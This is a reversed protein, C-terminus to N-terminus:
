YGKPCDKRGKQDEQVPVNNITRTDSDHSVSDTSDDQHLGLVSDSEALSTSSGPEITNAHPTDTLNTSSGPDIVDAHPTNATDSPSSVLNNSKKNLVPCDDDTSDDSDNASNSAAHPYTERSKNTEVPTLAESVKFVDMVPVKLFRSMFKGNSMKQLICFGDALNTVLYQPRRHFKDGESKIFVLDGVNICDKAAPKGGRAKSKSSYLHNKERLDHQHKTLDTDSFELPYGTIQDRKTIIEKASLGCHRIRSNLQRLSTGITTNSLSQGDLEASLFERELEQICKDIVPNKNPNKVRGYDITIGHEKLLSDDKLAVFGM